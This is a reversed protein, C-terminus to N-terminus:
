NVQCVKCWGSCWLGWGNTPAICCFVYLFAVAALQKTDASSSDINAYKQLQSLIDASAETPSFSDGLLECLSTLRVPM